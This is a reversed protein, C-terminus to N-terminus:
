DLTPESGMRLFRLVKFRRRIAEQDQPNQFCDEIEYNSTVIIRKPRIVMSSGKTEGRFPYRDAWIKLKQTLMEQRPDWDDLLVTEQNTYGDWWKNLDKVYLEPYKEWAWRTKGTGAHGVCWINELEGDITKLKRFTTFCEGAFGRYRAYLKSYPSDIMGAPPTIKAMEKFDNWEDPKADNIPLSGNEIYNPGKDLCYQRADLMRNPREWHANETKPMVRANPFHILCHWHLQGEETHDDDSIILYTHPLGQIYLKDEENWITGFWLRSRIRDGKVVKNIKTSAQKSKGM